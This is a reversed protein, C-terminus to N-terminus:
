IMLRDACSIAGSDNFKIRNPSKGGLTMNRRSGCCCFINKSHCGWLVWFRKLGGQGLPTDGCGMIFEDLGKMFYPDNKKGETQTFRLFKNRTNKHQSSLKGGERKNEKASGDRVLGIEIEEGSKMALRAKPTLM